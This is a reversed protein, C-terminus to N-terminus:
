VLVVGRDACEFHAAPEDIDLAELAFIRLYVPQDRRRAAIVPLAHGKGSATVAEGHRDIHWVAVGNLFIARHGREAGIEDFIALIKLGRALLGLAMGFTVPEFHRRGEM